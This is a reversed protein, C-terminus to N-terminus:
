PLLRMIQAAIKGAITVVAPLVEGLNEAAKKLGEAAIQVSTKNPRAKAAKEIADQAAEAVAEAEGQKDAPARALEAQLAAILQTLENRAAADGPLAGITQTVHDLTSKVNLISGSVNSININDGMTVEMHEIAQEGGFSTAGSHIPGYFNFTPSGLLRPGSTAPPSAPSERDDPHDAVASGWGRLLAKIRQIEARATRITHATAPPAFDVGGHAAAQRLAHALTRRHIDLLAQQHQIEDPSPM